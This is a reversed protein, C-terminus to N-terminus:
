TPLIRALTYRSRKLQSDSSPMHTWTKVLVHGITDSPEADVAQQLYEYAEVKRTFLRAGLPSGVHAIADDISEPLWPIGDSYWRWLKGNRMCGYVTTTAVHLRRAPTAAGTVDDDREWVHIEHGRRFNRNPCDGLLVLTLLREGGRYAHPHSVDVIEATVRHGGATNTTYRAFGGPRPNTIM